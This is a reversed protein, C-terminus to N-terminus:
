GLFAGEILMAGSVILVIQIIFYLKNENINMIYKKSIVASMVLGLVAPICLVIRNSTYAGSLLYSIFLTMSNVFMIGFQISRYRKQNYGYYHSCFIAYMPGGCVFAGQMMAGFFLFFHFSVRKLISERKLSEVSPFSAKKKLNYIGLIFIFCGLMGKIAQDSATQFLWIGVFTGPITICWYLLLNRWVIARINEVVRYLAHIFSIFALVIVIDRINFGLLSLIPVALINGGFGTIGTIIFGVCMVCFIAIM